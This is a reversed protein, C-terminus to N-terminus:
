EEEVGSRLWGGVIPDRAFEMIRRAVADPPEEWNDALVGLRNDSLWRGAWPNHPVGDRSRLVLVLVPVRTGEDDADESEVDLILSWPILTARSLPNGLRVALGEETTEVVTTPFVLEKLGWTVFLLGFALVMWAYIVDRAEFIQTDQPRFLAERLRDSFTRTYLVDVAIVVLPIGAMAM